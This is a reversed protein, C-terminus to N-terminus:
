GGGEVVQVGAGCGQPGPSAAPPVGEGAGGGAAAQQHPGGGHASGIM